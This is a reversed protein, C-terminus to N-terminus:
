IIIKEYCPLGDDLRTGYLELFKVVPFAGREEAFVYVNSLQAWAGDIKSIAKYTDGEDKNVYIKYEPYSIINMRITDSNIIDHEVGYALKQQIINIESDKGGQYYQKWFVYFPNSKNLYNSCNRNIKYVVTNENQNRQIYFLMDKVDPVPYHEPLGKHGLIDYTNQKDNLFLFM